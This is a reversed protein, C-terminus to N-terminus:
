GSKRLRGAEAQRSAAHRSAKRLRSRRMAAAVMVRAGEWGLIDMDIFGVVFGVIYGVSFGV